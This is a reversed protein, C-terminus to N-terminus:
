DGYTYRLCKGFVWTSKVEAIIEQEICQKANAYEKVIRLSQEGNPDFTVLTLLFVTKGM